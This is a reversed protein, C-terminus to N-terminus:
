KPPSESTDSPCLRRLDGPAKETNQGVERISITQIKGGIELEEVEKELRYLVTGLAGIVIPIVAVKM